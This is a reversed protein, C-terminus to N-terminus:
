PRVDSPRPPPELGLSAIVEGRPAFVVVFTNAGDRIEVTGRSRRGVPQDGAGWVQLDIAQRGAPLERRCVQIERPLLGWCRLDARENAEWATALAFSFLSAAAGELQLTHGATQVAAEKTVRRTVARAITWPREAAAQRIALEGVDTLTETAQVPQGAVGVGLRVAPSPPITVVPIPVRAPRPLAPQGSGAAVALSALNLAATTTEAVSETLIPGRGLCAFVYLVGHGPRSHTGGSARRLDEGAAQFEPEWRRVLRYARAADDYDHHTAERLVGRLYPAFAVPQFPDAAGPLGGAVGRAAAAEALTQQRLEAQLAYSEADSGDGALSTMALMARIMVEEYGAARFTRQRDDRLLADGEALPDIEPLRDFHDRAQRLRAEARALNGAAFETIALDLSAVDAQGPEQAASALQQRAIEWDGAYFAQRGAALRDVGPACGLLPIAALMLLAIRM